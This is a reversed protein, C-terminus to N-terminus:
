AIRRTEVEGADGPGGLAPTTSTSDEALFEELRRVAPLVRTDRFSGANIGGLIRAIRSQHGHVFQNDDDVLEDLHPLLKELDQEVRSGPEEGEDGAPLPGPLDIGAALRAIQKDSPAKGSEADGRYLWPFRLALLAWRQDGSAEAVMKRTIARGPHPRLEDPLDSAPAPSAPVPANEPGTRSNERFVGPESDAAPPPLLLRELIGTLRDLRAELLEIRTELETTELQQGM